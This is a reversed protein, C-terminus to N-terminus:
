FQTKYPWASLEFIHKTPGYYHLNEVHESFFFSTKEKFNPKVLKRPVFFVRNGCLSVVYTGSLVILLSIRSHHLVLLPGREAPRGASRGADDQSARDSRKANNEPRKPDNGSRKRITKPGNEPRKPDNESRKEHNECRKKRKKPTTTTATTTAATTTTTAM